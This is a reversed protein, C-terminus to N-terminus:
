FKKPKSKTEKPAKGFLHEHVQAPTAELWKGINRIAYYRDLGEPGRIPKGNNIQAAGARALERGLGNATTRTKANPDYLMLLERNTFLDGKLKLEGVSLVTDPDALLRHVWSGLDSKADSIMRSKASTFFAPAAPNFDGLDVQLLFDFLAAPGNTDMWLGYEMYFEEELPGVLVEHIFARRDDDELFFSDPHNSTFLYNICDPVSYPPMFKANIRLMKQTIMKKLLDNDQRKDSGTVDDGLILQKNEAWDNFNAHLDAQNIEAFNQGYIKGLTYGILSKGTGHRRGWLLANSYLKAGPYQIPYACWRIFWEKAGAEAGTFLHDVLKIFPGIDGPEPKCGWGPWTNWMVRDPDDPNVVQEAGPKYTMAAVQSRLPWKLWSLAIPVAQLSVTGDKRLIQESYDINSMAHEKMASPSMKFGTVRNVIIGPNMVYVLKENLEFLKRAETMPQARTTLERIDVLPNNVLYDDLGQKKGEDGEPVLVMYPLAGRNKLQEALANLADMVGAKMLVDSDFVIYVRRRAWKVAELEPLFTCGLASSKFNWVGGLGIAPCGEKCAKAAKLEGETIILTTDVDELVESWDVSPPFYAVVGAMPENIYRVGDKKDGDPRLYRLRYFSPWGPLCSLPENQNRPDWYTIKLAHLSHFSGHLAATETPSLPVMRLLDMDAEDLGSTALKAIALERAVQNVPEAKAKPQKKTPKKASAM